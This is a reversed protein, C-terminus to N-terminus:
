AGSIAESPRYFVRVSLARALVGPLQEKLKFEMIEDLDGRVCIVACLSPRDGFNSLTWHVFGSTGSIDGETVLPVLSRVEADDEIQETFRGTHLM